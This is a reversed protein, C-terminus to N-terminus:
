HLSSLPSYSEHVNDQGFINVIFRFNLVSCVCSLVTSNAQQLEDKATDLIRSTSKKKLLILCTHKLSMYMIYNCNTISIHKNSRLLVPLIIIGVDLFLSVM